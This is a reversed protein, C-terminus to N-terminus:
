NIKETLNTANKMKEYNKISFKTDRKMEYLIKWIHIFKTKFNINQLNEGLFFSFAIQFKGNKVRKLFNKSSKIYKKIIFPCIIKTMDNKIVQPIKYYYKLGSIQNTQINKNYIWM